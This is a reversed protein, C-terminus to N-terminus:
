VNEDRRSMHTRQSRPPSRMKQLAFRHIPARFLYVSLCILFWLLLIRSASRRSLLGWTGRRCVVAGFVVRGVATHSGECACVACAGVTCFRTCIKATNRGRKSTSGMICPRAGTEQMALASGLVAGHARRHRARRRLRTGKRKAAFARGPSAEPPATAFAATAAHTSAFPSVFTASVFNSGGRGGWCRVGVCADGVVTRM